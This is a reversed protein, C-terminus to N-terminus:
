EGEGAFYAIRCPFGGGCGCAGCACGGYCAAATWGRRRWIDDRLNVGETLFQDLLYGNAGHIEVGDFGAERARMAAQAFGQLAEQIEDLSIPQPVPYGGAGRYFVMQQGKPRVASPGRTGDRHPNGQSLAGAHMLQAVIRSGQAHVGDVVPKWADRQAEDSLGPQFLYGQSFAKDTYIGETIVLGFGGAAFAAYYGAMRTTAHGDATASVRTMPAVALRNKLQLRGANLSTFLASM